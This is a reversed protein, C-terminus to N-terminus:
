KRRCQSIAESSGVASMSPQASAMVGSESIKRWTAAGDAKSVGYKNKSRWAM